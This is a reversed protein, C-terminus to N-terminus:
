LFTLDIDATVNIPPLPPCPHRTRVDRFAAAFDHWGDPVEDPGLTNETRLLGSLEIEEDRLMANTLHGLTCQEPTPPLASAGNFVCGAAILILKLEVHEEPATGTLIWKLLEPLMEEPTREGLKAEIDSIRKEIDRRSRRRKWM